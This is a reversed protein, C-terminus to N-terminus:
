APDLEIREHETMKRQRRELLKEGKFIDKVNELHLGYADRLVKFDQIDHEALTRFQKSGRLHGCTPIHVIEHLIIYLRKAQPYVDFVPSWVALAYDFRDDAVSWPPLAKYIRAVAKSDLGGFSCLFIREPDVHGVLNPFLDIVKDVMPQLYRTRERWIKKIRPM